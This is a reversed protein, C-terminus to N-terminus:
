VEWESASSIVGSSLFIGAVIHYQVAGAGQLVSWEKSDSHGTDAVWQRRYTYQWFAVVNLPANLQVRHYNAYKLSMIYM